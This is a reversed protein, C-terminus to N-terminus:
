RKEIILSVSGAELSNFEDLHIHYGNPVEIQSLNILHNALSLLGERNCQLIIEEGESDKDILSKIQSNKTWNYHLSWDFCPVDITVKNNM